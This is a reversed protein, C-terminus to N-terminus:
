AESTSAVPAEEPGSEDEGMVTSVPAAQDTLDPLQEIHRAYAKEDLLGSRIYRDATRKDANKPDLTEAM